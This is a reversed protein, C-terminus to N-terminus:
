NELRVECRVHCMACRTRLGHMKRLAHLGLSVEVMHIIPRFPSVGDGVERKGRPVAVTSRSGTALPLVRAERGKTRRKM